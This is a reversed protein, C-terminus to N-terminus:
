MHPYTHVQTRYMTKGHIYKECMLINRQIMAVANGDVVKKM